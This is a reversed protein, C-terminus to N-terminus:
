IEAGKISSSSSKLQLIQLKNKGIKGQKEGQYSMNIYYFLFIKSSISSSVRCFSMICLTRPTLKLYFNATQNCSNKRQM